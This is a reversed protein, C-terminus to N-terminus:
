LYVTKELSSDRHLIKKIVATFSSIFNNLHKAMLTKSSEITKSLEDWKKQDLLNQFTDTGKDTDIEVSTIGADLLSRIQTEKAIVTNEAMLLVNKGKQDIYIPYSINMGVKLKGIDIKKLAM